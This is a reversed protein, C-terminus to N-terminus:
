NKRMKELKLEEKLSNTISLKNLIINLQSEIITWQNLYNKLNNMLIINLNKNSM